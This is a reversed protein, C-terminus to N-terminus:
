LVSKFLTLMKRRSISRQIPGNFFKGKPENKKKIVIASNNNFKISSHDKNFRLKNARIILLRCIDGKIYFKYKFGKYEIRPPEVVRACGKVFFGPYSVKRHFGKYLHFVKINRINTNDIINLWSEKYIM